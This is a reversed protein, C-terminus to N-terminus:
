ASFASDTIAISELLLRLQAAEEAGFYMGKLCVAVMKMEGPIAALALSGAGTQLTVLHTLGGGHRQGCRQAEELLRLLDPHHFQAGASPPNCVELGEPGWIAFCTFAAPLSLAREAPPKVTRSAPRSLSSPPPPIECDLTVPEELEALADDTGYASLWEMPEETFIEEDPPGTAFQPLEDPEEPVSDSAASSQMALESSLDWPPATTATGQPDFSPFEAPEELEAQLSFSHSAGNGAPNPSSLSIAETITRQVNENLFAPLERFEFSSCSWSVMRALAAEGSLGPAEAYIVCGKRLCVDGSEGQSNAVRLWAEDPCGAVAELFESLPMAEPQLGAEYEKTCASVLRCLQDKVSVPPMLRIKAPRSLESGRARDAFIVFSPVRDKSFGEAIIELNGPQAPSDELLVVSFRKRRSLGIAEPGPRVILYDADPDEDKLQLCHRVFPASEQGVVLIGARNSTWPSSSEPRIIAM